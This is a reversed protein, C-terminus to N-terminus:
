EPKVGHAYPQPNKEGEPFSSVPYETPYGPRSHGKWGEANDAALEDANQMAQIDEESMRADVAQVRKLYGTMKALLEDRMKPMKESLDHWEYIDERVNFLLVEENNFYNKMLKYDGSRIASQRRTGAWRVGAGCHFVLGEPM